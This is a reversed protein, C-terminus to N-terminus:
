VEVVREVVKVVKECFLFIGRCFLDVVGDFEVEVWVWKGKVDNMFGKLLGIMWLLVLVLLLREK